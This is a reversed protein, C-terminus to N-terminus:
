GSDTKWGMQLFPVTKFATGAQVLKLVSARSSYANKFMEAVYVLDLYRLEIDSRV